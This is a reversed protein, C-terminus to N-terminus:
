GTSVKTVSSCNSKSHSETSSASVVSVNGFSAIVKFHNVVKDDIHMNSNHGHFQDAM